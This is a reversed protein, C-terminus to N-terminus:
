AKGERDHSRSQERFGKPSLKEHKRFFRSFHSPENFGLRDSITAISMDAFVLYRKAETLLYQHILALANANTATLCIQNLHAATVGIQQAYWAVNHRSAGHQQILQRFQTFKQEPKSPRGSQEPLSQKIRALSIFLQKLLVQIMEVRYSHWNTDETELRSAVEAVDKEDGPPVAIVKGENLFDTGAAPLWLENVIPSAVSFVTGESGERWRFGHILGEPVSVVCPASVTLTKGDLVVEGGGKLVLFLQHIGKHRHPSILWDHRASRSYLPESYFFEKHSTQPDGYFDVYDM